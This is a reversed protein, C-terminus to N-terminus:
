YLIQSTHGLTNRVHDGATLQQDGGIHFMEFM